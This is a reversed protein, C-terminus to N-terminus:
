GLGFWVLGFWVFEVWAVLWVEPMGVHLQPAFSEARSDRRVGKAKATLKSVSPLQRNVAKRPGAAM